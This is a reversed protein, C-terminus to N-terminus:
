SCADAACTLPAAVIPKEGRRMEALRLNNLQGPHDMMGFDFSLESGDEANFPRWSSQFV